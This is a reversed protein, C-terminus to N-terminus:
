RRGNWSHGKELAPLLRSEDEQESEDDYYEKYVRLFGDFTVVEGVATFKDDTGSVSVTATTKELEADAMQSALTRKWILKYLRQEQSTGEITENTM